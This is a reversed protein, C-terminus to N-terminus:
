IALDGDRLVYGITAGRTVSVTPRHVLFDVHRGSRIQGGPFGQNSGFAVHATRLAKEDELMRGVLRAGPNLGM